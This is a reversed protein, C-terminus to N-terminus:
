YDFINYIKNLGRSIFQLTGLYHGFIIIWRFQHGEIWDERTFSNAEIVFDVTDKVLQEPKSRHSFRPQIALTKLGYRKKYGVESIPANPLYMMLHIDLYNHLGQEMVSTVGNIFSELTEEPLGWILEVYGFINEKEYMQIFKRLKGGLKQRKKRIFAERIM